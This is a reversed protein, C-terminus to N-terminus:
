SKVDQNKKRSRKKQYPKRGKTSNKKNKARYSSPESPSDEIEEETYLTTLEALSMGSYVGGKKPDIKKPLNDLEFQPGNHQVSRAVVETLGAFGGLVFGVPGGMIGGLSAFFAGTAIAPIPSREPAESSLVRAHPSVTPRFESLDVSFLINDDEERDQMAASLYSAILLTSLFFIKKLYNSIM